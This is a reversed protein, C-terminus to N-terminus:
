IPVTSRHSIFGRYGVRSLGAVLASSMATHKSLAPSLYIKSVNRLKRGLPQPFTNRASNHLEVTLRETCMQTAGLRQARKSNFISWRAFSNNSKEPSVGRRQM